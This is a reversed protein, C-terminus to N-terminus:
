GLYTKIRECSKIIKPQKELPYINGTYRGKYYMPKWWKGEQYYLERKGNILYLGSEREEM